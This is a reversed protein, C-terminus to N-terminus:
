TSKEGILTAPAPSGTAWDLLEVSHVIPRPTHGAIQVICGINGTAIVHSSPAKLTAAKRKSLQHALTPQLLNYVGASGCCLASEKPYHVNFGPKELRTGPIDGAKQSHQLTCPVHYSVSCHAAKHHIDMPTLKEAYELDANM